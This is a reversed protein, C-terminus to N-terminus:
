KDIILAAPCHDKIYNFVFDYNDKDVYIQNNLTLYNVHIIDHERDTKITKVKSFDSHIDEINALYAGAGATGANGTLMGVFFSAKGIKQNYEKEKEMPIHTVGEENMEFRAHYSGGLSKVYFYFALYAVLYVFLFIPVAIKLFYLFGDMDFNGNVGMIIAMAVIIFLFIFTMIKMILSLLSKNKSFDMEYEWTYKGENNMKINEM